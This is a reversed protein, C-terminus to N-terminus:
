VQDEHIMDRAPAVGASRFLQQLMRAGTVLRPGPRNLLSDHIVAVNGMRICSLDGWGPRDKVAARVDREGAGCWHCVMLHPDAAYLLKLDFEYSPEGARALVPTGGALRVLEPIWNGAVMPPQPWEEMYVTPRHPLTNAAVAVLGADFEAALKHGRDPVGLASAITVYSAAVDHLNLPELHVVRGPGPWHRLANPLFYSTFIIDPRLAALKDTAATTWGGLKPLTRVAAPYDCFASVAVLRDTYGLAAIIETTAPAM